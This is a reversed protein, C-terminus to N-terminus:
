QAPGTHSGSGSLSKWAVAVLVVRAVGTLWPLPLAFGIWLVAEVALVALNLVAGIRRGQWLLWASWTAVLTLGLFVLLLAVLTNDSVSASWPGGYMEFLGLFTPLRGNRLLYISIPVTALGFGAAYIWTLIAAARASNV